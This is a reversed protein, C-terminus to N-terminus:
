KVKPLPLEGGEEAPTRSREPRGKGARKAVRGREKEGREPPEAPFLPSICQFPFSTVPSCRMGASELVRGCLRGKEGGIRKLEKGKYGSLGLKRSKKSTEWCGERPQSGNSPRKLEPRGKVSDGTM